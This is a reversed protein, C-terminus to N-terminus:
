LELFDGYRNISIIDLEKQYNKTVTSIYEEDQSLCLTIKSRIEQISNVDAVRTLKCYEHDQLADLFLNGHICPVGLAQSEINAMPHCDVLSANLTIRSSNMLQITQVRDIFKIFKLKHKFKSPLDIDNGYALIVEVENSLAAAFANAYINKRWGSWGPLFATKKASRVNAFSKIFDLRPSKNLLIPKFIGRHSYDFGNRMVHVKYLLGKELMDLAIFVANRDPEHFWQSPAGHHVFFLKKTEFERSLINILTAMNPSMAHFIIRSPNINLVKTKLIYLDQESLSEEAPIAIKRGPLSGAAARIGFWESHFIHLVDCFEFHSSAYVTDKIDDVVFKEGNNRKESDDHFESSTDFTNYRNNLENVISKLIHSFEKRELKEKIPTEYEEQLRDIRKLLESNTQKLNAIEQLVSNSPNIISNSQSENVAVEEVM